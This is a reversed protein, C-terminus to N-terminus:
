ADQSIQPTGRLHAMASEQGAPSTNFGCDTSTLLPPPSTVMGLLSHGGETLRGGSTMSDEEESLRTLSQPLLSDEYLSLDEVDEAPESSVEECAIDRLSPTRKLSTGGSARKSNAKSFTGGERQPTTDEGEENLNLVAPTSSEASESNSRVLSSSVSSEVSESKSRVLGYSGVTDSGDPRLVRRHSSVRATQEVPGYGNEGGTTSHVTTSHVPSTVLSSTDKTDYLHTINTSVSVEDPAPGLQPSDGNRSDFSGLSTTSSQMSTISMSCGLGTLRGPTNYTAIDGDCIENVKRDQNSVVEKTSPTYKKGMKMSCPKNPDEKTSVQVVGTREPSPDKPVVDRTPNTKKSLKGGDNEDKHGRSDKMKRGSVFTSSNAFSKGTSKKPSTHRYSGTGGDVTSQRIMGGGKGQPSSEVAQSKSRSLTIKVRSKVSSSVSSDVGKTPSVKSKAELSLSGVSARNRSLSTALKAVRYFRTQPKLFDVEDKEYGKRLCWDMPTLGHEKDKLNVSARGKQALIKACNLNANKTALHLATNGQKNYHDVQLGLRRFNRTLLETAVDNGVAASYILATNGYQDELDPKIKHHHILLRVIDNCRKECAHILPSRGERDMM